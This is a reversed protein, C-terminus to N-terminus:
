TPEDVLQGRVKPYIAWYIKQDHMTFLTSQNMSVPTIVDLGCTSLRQSFAHDELIAEPRWRGPRYFKVVISKEGTPLPDSLEVEIVRNELSNLPMCRGTPHLGLSEIESLLRDPTLDFFFQTTAGLVDMLAQLLSCQSQCSSLALHFFNFRFRAFPLQKQPTTKSLTRNRKLRNEQLTLNM